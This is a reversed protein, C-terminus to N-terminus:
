RSPGGRCARLWADGQASTRAASGSRASSAAAGSNAERAHLDARAEHRELEGLREHDRAVCAVGIGDYLDVQEEVAHAAVALTCGDVIVALRDVRRESVDLLM